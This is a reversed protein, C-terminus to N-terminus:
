DMYQAKPSLVKVDKPDVCHETNFSQEAVTLIVPQRLCNYWQHEKLRTGICTGLRNLTIHAMSGLFVTFVWLRSDWIMRSSTSRQNGGCLCLVADVPLM